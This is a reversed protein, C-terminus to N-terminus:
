IEFEQFELIAAAAMKYIMFIAIDGCHNSLDERFRTRYHLIPRNVAGIALFKIKLFGLHRVVAMQFDNFRWTELMVYCLM